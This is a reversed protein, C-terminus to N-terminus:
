LQSQFFLLNRVIVFRLAQLIRTAGLTAGIESFYRSPCDFICIAELDTGNLFM